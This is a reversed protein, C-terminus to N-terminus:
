PSREAFYARRASITLLYICAIAGASQGAITVNDPDGGFNAINEKIWRLAALWDLAGRNAPVGKMPMYGEAGLRYNVSVM